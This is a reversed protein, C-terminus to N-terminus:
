SRGVRHNFMKSVTQSNRLPIYSVYDQKVPIVGTASNSNM